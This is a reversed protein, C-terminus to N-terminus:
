DDFIDDPTISTFDIPAPKPKPTTRRAALRRSEELAFERAAKAEFAMRSRAVAASAPDLLAMECDERPNLVDAVFGPRAWEQRLCEALVELRHSIARLHGQTHLVFAEPDYGPANRAMLDERAYAIFPCGATNIPDTLRWRVSARLDMIDASTLTYPM